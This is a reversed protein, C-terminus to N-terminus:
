GRIRDTRSKKPSRRISKAKVPLILDLPYPALVEFQGDSRVHVSDELRVGMGKDPYYLGPEITMVVGPILKDKETAAMGSRPLEHVHLGLGHGLSHVYGSQTAPDSQITTHGQAEFLDCTRTQYHNFEVGVQLEQMITQYVSRVNEYLSQVSDPAYGLCWTRTFDYFYGGGAECPFIDFVITEGLRLPDSSTGVSHPVGADRGIAFITGEPNDAGLEALWRNIHSKIDGITIQQGAQNMLVDNKATRSTLYEAVRAVVETTIKGMHRIRNVESDDKTMMAQMLISTGAEGILTLDPTAQQLASFVAFSTGADLQGYIGLRGSNIGLDNFMLQYRVATAKIVDGGASKLLDNFKYDTFNRTKLGTRAAEDREMSYCFLVPEEGRKKILDANTLHAGGTLYVMVPNNQAPGTVLIADLNHAAMLTDLDIKM